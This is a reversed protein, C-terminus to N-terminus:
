NDSTIALGIEKLLVAANFTKCPGTKILYDFNMEGDTIQIDFHFNRVANVNTQELESLQLDHTAFLTPTKIQILKEIFVKSGLFKDRSNTGRLMEDILVFSNEDQVVNALIMKLRNLEAKFTSTSENLSDKIRMYTLIKFISLEMKEACVPAGVYALIMNVGLTRLFTSKGAMNSGTIIDVTPKAELNFNNTVRKRSPILPHGMEVALVTFQDNIQPFVWSPQNHNLTAISILEEFYGIRDLGNEVKASSTQHWEDLKICCRLDWLLCFNLVGAVLINLRADFAQIIKALKKIHQSAKDESSFLDTIYKSEWKRDETWKIADAYDALIASTGGFGYYVANIKKMWFFTLTAHLLLVISLIGWIKGGFILGAFLLIPMVFPLLKIYFRLVPQKTFGLQEALHNKLKEKLQEINNVDNGKLTARFSFTDAVKTAIEKVADQRLLIEEKLNPLAFKAALHTIGNRTSCRNILAFLSSKGFIDLDSLYPHAEDEFNRGNDYGNELGNLVNVENQYVWLLHKLYTENKTLRNQKRVVAVFIFIPILMCLGGLLTATDSESRVFSIFLFIEVILLVVRIFSLKDIKVKIKAIKDSTDSILSQYNNLIEPETSQM